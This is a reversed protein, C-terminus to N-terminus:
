REDVFSFYALARHKLAFLPLCVMVINLHAAASGVLGAAVALTTLRMTFRTSSACTPNESLPSGDLDVPATEPQLLIYGRRPYSGSTMRGGGGAYSGAHASRFLTSGTSLRHVM